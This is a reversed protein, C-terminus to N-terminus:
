AAWMRILNSRTKCLTDFLGTKGERAFIDAIARDLDFLIERQEVSRVWSQVWGVVCLRTGSRVPEVRHLTTSPYLILDGAALKFAREEVTDAVILAGGEYSEPDNLFLTFSLDTRVGQMLADDVHMGYTQGERYRSVILKTMARPRAASAFVPHAMLAASVKAQVAELEPSPRAQDNAKIERVYRGATARGDGFDLAAAAERLAAVEGANLVQELALFM